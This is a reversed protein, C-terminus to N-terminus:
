NGIGAFTWVELHVGLRRMYDSISMESRGTRVKDRRRHRETALFEREAAPRWGGDEGVGREGGDPLRPVRIGGVDVISM